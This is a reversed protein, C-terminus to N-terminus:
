GSRHLTRERHLFYSFVAIGITLPFLAVLVPPLEYVVVLFSFARGVLYFITGLLAGTFVRQGASVSRLNGMVFPVSLILMVVTAMPTALKTWFAVEYGTADQKNAKMVQIYDHLQWVPLMFPKVVAVSLMAPSVVSEWDLRQIKQVVIAEESLTSQRVQQLIWKNDAYHGRGARTVQELRADEGFRFIAIDSLRDDAAVRKINVIANGDKAWFGNRSSFTVQEHQKELRLRQGYQEASPAIVDGILVVLVLLAVGGRMVAWLVHRLSQGAARMAVLEGHSALAGLGLLSGILASVPFAEYVFRPTTSLGVVLADLLGYDGKGVDEVQEIFTLVFALLTLGLLTLLIAKIVSVAIYRDLLKM